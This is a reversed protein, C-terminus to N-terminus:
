KRYPTNVYYYSNPYLEWKKVTKEIFRSNVLERIVVDFMEKLEQEGKAYVMTFPFVRVPNDPVINKLAGPHSAMFQNAANLDAFVIDAKRDQVNMFVQNYETNNPISFHAADPFDENAIMETVDGDMTAIKIDPDNIRELNDASFRMDDARVFIGIGSFLMDMSFEAERARASAMWLPTCAADYRGAKLGEVMNGFTAEEAWEINLSLRKAIENMIDITFGSLEGTQADMQSAPKYLYYGCRITGTRLIRDYTSEKAEAKTEVVGSSPMLRIMGISITLSIFIVILVHSAKM